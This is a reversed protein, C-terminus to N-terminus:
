PSTIRCLDQHICRQCTSNTIPKPAFCGSKIEEILSRIRLLWEQQLSTWEQKTTNVGPIDTLSSSVGSAKVGDKKISLFFLSTINIDALAYMLMQPHVPREQNWPLPTPINSKYDILCQRGDQLEDQRDYRLQFSWDDIQLHITQELGKIRFAPRNLDFALAERVISELRQHEVRTYLLDMSYPRQAKFKTLAQDICTKILASIEAESRSKLTAQDPIDVWILQMILHLLSGKERADLGISETMTPQTHLRYTAFAQFPCQSQLSLLHSGGKINEQPQIPWYSPDEFTELSLLTHNSITQLPYSPWNPFLPSPWQPEQEIQEAYSIVVHQHAHILRQLMQHAMQHEAQRQTRPFAHQKQWQIPLYPSFVIGQPILHSQMHGIWLADGCFGSSELWGMVHIGHYSQPPQHIQQQCLMSLADIAEAFTWSNVFENVTQLQEMTQYFSGLLAHQTDVLAHEGPFGCQHLRKSFQLMWETPSLKEPYSSLEHLLHHLKPTANQCANLFHSISVQPEQFLSHRQYFQRREQVEEKAGLIFPSHCLIRSQERTVRQDPSLELLSIAHQVLPFELLHRGLSFHLIDNPFYQKLRRSLRAQQQSLDPLVVGIRQSGRERQQQIWTILQQTEQEDNQAALAQYNKPLPSPEIDFEEQAIGLSELHSQLLVQQPHLCDFCAWIITQTSWPYPECSLVKATDHPAIAKLIDLKLSVQQYLKQFQEAAPTYLFDSSQPTQNMLACNKIALLTQRVEFRRLRRGWIATAAETWLSEWQWDSLRRPLHHHPRTFLLEQYWFDLWAEYAFCAPKVIVDQTQADTYARLLERQLRQTPTIVTAGAQLATILKQFPM